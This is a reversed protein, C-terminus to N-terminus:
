IEREDHDEQEARKIAAMEDAANKTKEEAILAMVDAKKLSTLDHYSNEPLLPDFQMISKYPSFQLATRNQERVPALDLHGDLIESAARKILHETHALLDDLEGPTVLKDSSYGKATKRLGKFLQSYKGGKLWEEIHDLFDLDNLLLGQYQEAKLLATLPDQGVVDGAKLIPNQLHLYVAGALETSPAEDHPVLQNLNQKVADLYTLMQMAQGYYASQYNFQHESSKYDVIGLFTKDALKLADLRDIRGRVM